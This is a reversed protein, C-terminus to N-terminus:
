LRRPVLRVRAANAPTVTFGVSPILPDDDDDDKKGMMAKGLEGDEAATAAPPPPPPPTIDYRCALRALVIRMFVWALHQGVCARPGTAFPMFDAGKFRVRMPPPPPPLSSSSSGGEGSASEEEGHNSEGGSGDM